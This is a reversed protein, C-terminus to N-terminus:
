KPHEPRKPLAPRGPAIFESGRLAGALNEAYETLVDTCTRYWEFEARTRQGAMLPAVVGLRDDLIFDPGDSGLTYKLPTHITENRHERLTNCAALLWAIEALAAAGGNLSASAALKGLEKHRKGDAGFGQWRKVAAARDGGSLTCYLEGLETQLANWSFVVHGMALAYPAFLSEFAMQSIRAPRRSARVNLSTGYDTM